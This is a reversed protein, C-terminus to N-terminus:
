YQQSPFTNNWAFSNWECCIKCSLIYCSCSQAVHIMTKVLRCQKKTSHPVQCVMFQILNNAKDRYKPSILTLTWYFHHIFHCRPTTMAECSHQEAATLQVNTPSQKLFNGTINELTQHHDQKFWKAAPRSAWTHHELIWTSSGKGLLYLYGVVRCQKNENDRSKLSCQCIIGCSVEM